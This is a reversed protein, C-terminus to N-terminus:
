IGDGPASALAFARKALEILQRLEPKGALSKYYVGYSM